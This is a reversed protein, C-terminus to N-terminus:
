SKSNICLLTCSTKSCKIEALCVCCPCEQVYPSAFMNICHELNESIAKAMNKKVLMPRFCKAHARTHVRTYISLGWEQGATHGRTRSRRWKYRWIWPGDKKSQAWSASRCWGVGKDKPKPQSRHNPYMLLLHSPLLFPINPYRNGPNRSGSDPSHKLQWGGETVGKWEAM